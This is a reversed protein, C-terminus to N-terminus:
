EAEQWRSLNLFLDAGISENFTLTGDGRSWQGAALGMQMVARGTWNTGTIIPNYTLEAIVIGEAKNPNHKVKLEEEPANNKTITWTGQVYWFGAKQSVMDEYPSFVDMTLVFIGDPVINGGKAKAKAEITYGQYYVGEKLEVLTGENVVQIKSLNWIVLEPNVVPKKALVSSAILLISVVMVTALAVFIKRKKVM